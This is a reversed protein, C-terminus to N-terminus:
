KGGDIERFIYRVGPFSGYQAVLEFKKIFEDVTLGLSKAEKEAVGWPFTVELSNRDPQARRLRYTTEYAILTGRAM